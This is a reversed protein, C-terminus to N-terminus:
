VLPDVVKYLPIHCNLSDPISGVPRTLDYDYAFFFNQSAFILKTYRLLKPLLEVTEGPSTSAEPREDLVLSCDHVEPLHSAEADEEEEKVGSADVRASTLTTSTTTDKENNGPLVDTDQAGAARLGSLGLAKRSLWTAAFRGFRVKKGIVDEAISGVGSRRSRSTGRSPSAPMSSVDTDSGDTDSSDPMDDDDESATEGPGSDGQLVSERAQSIARAADAQSSIPILAVNTM